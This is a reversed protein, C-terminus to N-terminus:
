ARSEGDPTWAEYDGTAPARGPGGPLAGPPRWAAATGTPNARHPKQWPAAPRPAEAPSAARTRNLWGQWEPPVSSAETEGAYLVWRRERRGRPPNRERYYVNGAPDAGVRTGRFRTYLRTGISAGM